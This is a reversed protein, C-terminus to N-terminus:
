LFPRVIIAIIDGFLAASLLGATIPILFPVGYSIWIPGAQHYLEILEHYSEPDEKLRKTYVRQRSGKMMDTIARRVSIFQHEIGTQTKTIDEMIIGFEDEITKGDVPFGLIMYRIPARNGKILNMAFIGAPVFLNLIVANVLVSFPFFVYPPIGFFTYGFIPIAPFCPIFLTIFILAKADAVGFLNFYTFLFFTIAFFIVMILIPFLNAGMGSTYAMYYFWITAPVTLILMPYWMVVPVARERIDYWCGLLLTVLLAFFSIVLPEFGSPITLFSPM